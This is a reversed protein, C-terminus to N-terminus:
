FAALSKFFLSFAILFCLSTFCKKILKNGKLYSLYSGTIGGLFSGLILLILINIPLIGIKGLFYAGVGNWFIGVTLFTISIANLFDIGFIKILLITVLLGTGSSISGNLIGIIFILFNFRILTFYNVRKHIINIGFNPKILSYTGIIISIIAILIYLYDDSLYKIISTGLIVGPIGFILIQFIIGFYAKLNFKKRISGGLGLAVTAIKHVGLAQYYPLGFLLLAPLQILGAGGGSVASFLNSFFSILLILLYHYISLNQYFEFNLIIITCSTLTCNIM